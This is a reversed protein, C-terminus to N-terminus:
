KGVNEPLNVLKDALEDGLFKSFYGKLNQRKEREFAESHTVM